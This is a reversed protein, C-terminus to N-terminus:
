AARGRHAAGHEGLHQWPLWHLMRALRPGGGAEVQAVVAGALTPVTSPVGQVGALRALAAAELEVGEREAPHHLKLVFRGSGGDRSGDLLFNLTREGPLQRASSIVGFLEAAIHEAEATRGSGSPSGAATM